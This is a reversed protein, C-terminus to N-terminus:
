HLHDGYVAGSKKDSITMRHRRINIDIQKTLWTTVRKFEKQYDIHKDKDFNFKFESLVDM